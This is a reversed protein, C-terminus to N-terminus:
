NTLDKIDAEIFTKNLKIKIKGGFNMSEWKIFKCLQGKWFIPQNQNLKEMQKLNNFHAKVGM